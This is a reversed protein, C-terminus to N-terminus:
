GVIFKQIVKNIQDSHTIPSMHGAGDILRKRVDPFRNELIELVRLTPKKSKKGGVLLTPKNFTEPLALGEGGGFIVEFEHVNKQAGTLVYAVLNEDLSEWAGPDNWYDFYHQIGEESKGAAVCDWFFEAVNRIENYAASETEPDLFWGLMPEILTLSKIKEPSTMALHNAITGGYSHGVLHFESDIDKTIANLLAIEDDLLFGETNTWADTGGWGLMDVAVVRYDDQLLEWLGRWQRHSSSSCHILVIPEGSGVDHFNVTVGDCNLTPM